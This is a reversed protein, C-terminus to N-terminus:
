DFKKFDIEKNQSCDYIKKTFHVVSYKGTNKDVVKYCSDMYFRDSPDNKMVFSFMYVNETPNDSMSSVRKGPNYKLAIEYAEKASIM